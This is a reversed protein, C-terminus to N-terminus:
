LGVQPVRGMQVAGIQEERDQAPPLGGTVPQLSRLHGPWALCTLAEGPLQPTNVRSAPLGAQAHSSAQKSCLAWFSKRRAPRQFPATMLSLHAAQAAPINLLSMPVFM